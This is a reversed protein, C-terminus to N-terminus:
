DLLLCARQNRKRWYRQVFRPRTDTGAKRAVRREWDELLRDAEAFARAPEPPDALWAKEVADREERYLPLLREPDSAVRRHLHEHRWWLSAEDAQDDAAPGVDVPEEVRIPKFLGTCPAATGTVWHQAGLRSLEAVWSATTQSSALIGGAHVCPAGMGGNVWSYVASDGGAGHDRLLAMMDALDEAKRARRQTCAQRRHAAAVSTKLSTAYRSAFPEISLANSITRAGNVKETAWRRGATEVVYAGGPDAVMFSNHYSFLRDEHGCGGGQGHIELLRTITEVAEAATASRELGLRLLDMGTLGEDAYPESTFVAENGIVVGHQNAGMEAGWMWFPRSLLVAFTEPAQPIEIWTCHL